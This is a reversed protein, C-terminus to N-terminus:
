GMNSATKKSYTQQLNVFETALSPVGLGGRLWLGRGDGDGDRGGRGEGGLGGERVDHEGVRLVVVELKVGQHTM